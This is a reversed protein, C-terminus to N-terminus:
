FGYCCHSRCLVAKGAIPKSSSDRCGAGRSPAKTPDWPVLGKNPTSDISPTRSRSPQPARSPNSFPGAQPKVGAERGVGGNAQFRSEVFEPGPGRAM